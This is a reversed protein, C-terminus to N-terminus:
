RERAEAESGAGFIRRFFSSVAGAVALAGVVILKWFRAFLGTKVLAAGAGGAILATLGIKAVDDKGPVFEAYRSGPQFEFGTLLEDVAPAARVLETRDAVLTASMVGRRGLLKINRNIVSGGESAGEVAWTLNNTVPDYFPEEYWGVIRLEGWGRRRREKNAEANGARISALLADADISSGESDDVYGIPSWEFILFWGEDMASPAVTAVESGDVPNESLEMLQRTGEADLFVYSTDLRISALGDGIESVGEGLRWDLQQATATTTSLGATLLLSVCLSAYHRKGIRM